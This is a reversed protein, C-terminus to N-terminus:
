QDSREKWRYGIRTADWPVTKGDWHPTGTAISTQPFYQRVWDLKRQLVPNTKARAEATEPQLHAYTVTEALDEFNDSAAYGSFFDGDGCASRRVGSSTWCIRYFDVSPDDLPFTEGADTFPSVPSGPTGSVCPSLEWFHTMEHLLIASFEPSRGDVLVTSKGAYGRRTLHGDYSVVFTKLHRLCDEPLLSLVREADRRQAPRVGSDDLLASLVPRHTRAPAPSPIRVSARRPAAKTLVPHLSVRIRPAAPRAAEATGAVSWTSHLTVTAAACLVAILCRSRAKM